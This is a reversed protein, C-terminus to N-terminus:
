ERSVFLTSLFPKSKASDGLGSEERESEPTANEDLSVAAAMESPTEEGDGMDLSVVPRHTVQMAVPTATFVQVDDREYGAALLSEVHRSAESPSEFYSM